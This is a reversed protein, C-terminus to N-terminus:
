FEGCITWRDPQSHVNGILLRRDKVKRSTQDGAKTEIEVKYPVLLSGGTEYPTPEGISIIRLFRGDKCKEALWSAPLGQYLRGAKAFDRAILAEFYERVVKKAIQEDALDGQALGVVQTTQDIRLVDDPVDLVFVAPDIDQNYELIDVTTELEFHDGERKYAELKKLLKTQGDIHFILRQGSEDVYDVILKIPGDPSDSQVTEVTIEGTQKTEALWQMRARPDFGKILSANKELLNKENVIMTFNKAKFWTEAKDNKWVSERPGAPTQPSNVRVNLLEGRDDLEIWAEGVGQESPSIRIHITRLSENAQLTQEIAYAPTTTTTQIVSIAVVAAVVVAAAAALKTWRNHIVAKNMINRWSKEHQTEGMVAEAGALIRRDADPSTTFRINGITQELDDKKM